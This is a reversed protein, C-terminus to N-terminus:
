FTMSGRFLDTRRYSGGLAIGTGPAMGGFKPGFGDAGSTFREVWAHEKVKLFWREARNPQDPKVDAAKQEQQAAIAALRSDDDAPLQQAVAATLLTFGLFVTSTRM